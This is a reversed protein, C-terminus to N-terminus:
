NLTPRIFARYTKNSVKCLDAKWEILTQWVMFGVWLNTYPRNEKMAQSSTLHRDIASLELYQSHEKHSLLDQTPIAGFPIFTM